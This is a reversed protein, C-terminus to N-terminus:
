LYLGIWAPRECACGQIGFFLHNWRYLLVPLIKKSYGITEQQQFEQKFLCTSGSKIIFLDRQCVGFIFFQVERDEFRYIVM